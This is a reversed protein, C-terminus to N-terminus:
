RVKLTVRPMSSVSMARSRSGKRLATTTAFCRQFTPVSRARLNAILNISEVTTNRKLSGKNGSTAPVFDAVGFVDATKDQWHGRTQKCRCCHQAEQPPLTVGLRGGTTPYTAGAGCDDVSAGHFALTSADDNFSHSMASSKQVSYSDVATGESM